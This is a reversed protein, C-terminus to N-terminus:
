YNDWNMSEDSDDAERLRAIEDMEEKTLYPSENIYLDDVLKYTHQALMDTTMPPLDGDQSNYEDIFDYLINVLDDRGSQETWEAINSLIKSSDHRGEFGFERFVRFIEKLLSEDQVGLREKLEERYASTYETSTYRSSNFQQITAIATKLEKVDMFNRWDISTAFTHKSANVFKNKKDKLVLNWKKSMQMNYDALGQERLNKLKKNAERAVRKYEDQLSAFKSFSSLGRKSKNKKSKSKTSKKKAM